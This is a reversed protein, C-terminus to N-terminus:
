LLEKCQEILDKFNKCFENLIEETPFTFSASEHYIMNTDDTSLQIGYVEENTDSWNPKWSGSLGMQEGAIKWYANRCIILNQLTMFISFGYYENEPLMEKCEEYTKPYVPKKKVAYTKGDRVEIEYDGLQLEIKDDCVDPKLKIVSVKNTIQNIMIDDTISNVYRADNVTKCHNPSELEMKGTVNHHSIDKYEHGNLIGIGEYVHEEAYCDWLKNTIRIWGTDNTFIIDDVKYGLVKTELTEQYNDENMNTEKYPKLEDQTTHENFCEEYTTPYKPKKKVAYTRGDRVEIEYDGLNLEVEDAYDYSNLYIGSIVENSEGNWMKLDKALCTVCDNFTYEITTGTWEMSEITVPYDDCNDGFKTYVVKDGVNFPYKEYFEDLTFTIYNSEFIYKKYLIKRGEIIYWGNDKGWQGYVNDGGLMELLAIVENGREKDGKIALKKSM